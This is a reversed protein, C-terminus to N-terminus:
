AEQATSEAAYLTIDARPNSRDLKASLRLEPVFRWSDDEIVKCDVLLDLIGEAGNSLDRRVLDPYHFVIDVRVPRQILTKPFTSVIEKAVKNWESFRKSSTIFPKGTRANRFIRKSNKKSPPIPLSLRLLPGIAKIAKILMEETLVGSGSPEKFLISGASCPKEKRGMPRKALEVPLLSPACQAPSGREAPKLRQPLADYQAKTLRM